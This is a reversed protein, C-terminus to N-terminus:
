TQSSGRKKNNKKNALHNSKGRFPMNQNKSRTRGVNNDENDFSSVHDTFSSHGLASDFQNLLGMVVENSTDKRMSIFKPSKNQNSLNIGSDNFDKKMGPQGFLPFEISVLSAFDDIQQTVVKITENKQLITDQLRSIDKKCMDIEKRKSEQVNELQKKMTVNLDKEFGVIEEQMKLKQRIERLELQLQSVKESNENKRSLFDMYEKPAIKLEDKQEAMQQQQTLLSQNRDDLQKNHDELQKVYRELEANRGELENINQLMTEIRQEYGSSNERDRYASIRLQEQLMDIQGKYFESEKQFNSVQMKLM